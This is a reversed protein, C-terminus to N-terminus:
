HPSYRGLMCRSRARRAPFGGAAFRRHRRTGRLAQRCRPSHRSRRQAEIPEARRLRGSRQRRAGALFRDRACSSTARGGRSHDNASPQPWQQARLAPLVAGPSRRTPLPHTEDCHAAIPPTLDQWKEAPWLAFDGRPHAILLSLKNAVTRNHVAVLHRLAGRSGPFKGPEAARGCTGSSRVCRAPTHRELLISRERACDLM